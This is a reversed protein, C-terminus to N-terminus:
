VSAIVDEIVAQLEDAKFPKGRVQNYAIADV